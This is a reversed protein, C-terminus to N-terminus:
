NHGEQRMEEPSWLVISIVVLKYAQTLILFEKVTYHIIIIIRLNGLQFAQLLLLLKHNEKPGLLDAITQWTVGM